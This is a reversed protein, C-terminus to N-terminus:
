IQFCDVICCSTFIGRINVVRMVLVYGASCDLVVGASHTPRQYGFADDNAITSRVGQHEDFGPHVHIVVLEFHLDDALRSQEVRSSIGVLTYGGSVHDDDNGSPRERSCSGFSVDPPFRDLIHVARLNVPYKGRLMNVPYSLVTDYYDKIAHVDVDPM